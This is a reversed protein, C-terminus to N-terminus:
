SYPMIKQDESLTVLEGPMLAVFAPITFACTASTDTKFACTASTDTKHQM